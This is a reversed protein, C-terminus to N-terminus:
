RQEFGGELVALERWRSRVTVPLMAESVRIAAALEALGVRESLRAKRLRATYATPDLDDRETLLAGALRLAKPLGGCLAAIEEAATGIRPCISRLLVVADAPALADLDRCVLGPLAFRQRSTVLVACGEPPLLPEIQNSDRGNDLLLLAKKGRLVILYRGK